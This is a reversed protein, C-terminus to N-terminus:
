VNCKWDIKKGLYTMEAVLYVHDEEDVWEPLHGFGLMDLDGYDLSPLPWELTPSLRLNFYVRDKGAYMSVSFTGYKRNPYIKLALQELELGMIPEIHEELTTLKILETLGETCPTIEHRDFWSLTESNTFIYRGEEGFSFGDIGQHADIRIRLHENRM